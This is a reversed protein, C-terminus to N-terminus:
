GRDDPWEPAAGDAGAVLIADNDLNLAAAFSGAPAPTLLLPVAQDVDAPENAEPMHGDALRAALRWMAEAAPELDAPAVVTVLEPRAFKLMGRTHMVHGGLGPTPESEWVMMVERRVDFPADPAVAAVTEATAYRMGRADLVISAGRACLWRTVAWAAQLYGLDFPDMVTARVSVAADAADLAALDDGLDAAARKRLAGDRFGDIWARAADGTHTHVDLVQEPHGAPIGFRAASLEVGDVLSETHFAVLVVDAVRGTPRTDSRQWLKVTM